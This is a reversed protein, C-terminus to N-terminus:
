GEVMRRVEDIHREAGVERRAVDGKIGRAGVETEDTAVDVHVMSVRETGDGEKGAVVEVARATDGKSVDIQGIQEGCSVM